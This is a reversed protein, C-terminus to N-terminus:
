LIKQHLARGHNDGSIWKVGSDSVYGTGRNRCRCHSRVRPPIHALTPGVAVAPTAHGRRGPCGRTRRSTRVLIMQSSKCVPPRASQRRPDSALNTDSRSLLDKARKQSCIGASKAYSRTPGVTSDASAVNLSCCSPMNSSVNRSTYPPACPPRRNRRSVM